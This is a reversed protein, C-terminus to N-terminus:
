QRVTLYLFEQVEGSERLQLVKQQLDKLHGAEKRTWTNEGRELLRSHTEAVEEAALLYERRKAEGRTPFKVFSVTQETGSRPLGVGPPPGTSVVPITTSTTSTTTHTTHINQYM